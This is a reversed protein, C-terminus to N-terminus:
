HRELGTACFSMAFFSDLSPSPIWPSGQLTPSVSCSFMNCDSASSPCQYDTNVHVCVCIYIDDNYDNTYNM